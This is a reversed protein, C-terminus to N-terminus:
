EFRNLVDKLLQCREFQEQMELVFLDQEIEEIASGLDMNNRDYYFQFVYEQALDKEEQSCAPYNTYILQNLKRRRM